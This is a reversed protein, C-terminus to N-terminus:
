SRPAQLALPAGSAGGGGCAATPVPRAFAYDAFPSADPQTAALTASAARLWHLAALAFIHHPPPPPAEPLLAAKHEDIFATSVDASAFADTDLVRRLFPINTPVGVTQWAGLAALLRRRAADRDAGRTILKALMPDYFVSVQQLLLNM